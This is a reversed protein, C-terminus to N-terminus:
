FNWKIMGQVVDDDAGDVGFKNKWYHYEVGALLRDQEAFLLKGIDLLLQPQVLTQRVTGAGRSGIFDAFGHFVWRTAGLNFDADWAPTIQYTTRLSGKMDDYAYFDMQFYNLGPINWNTSLGYLSVQFDEGHNIGLGISTGQYFNEVPIPRALIKNLNLRTYYEGYVATDETGNTEETLDFFFYNDGYKWGSAHELTITRIDAKGNPASGFNYDEGYLLQIDTNSWEAAQLLGSIFFLFGGLSSLSKKTKM